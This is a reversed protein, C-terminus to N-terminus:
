STEPESEKEIGVNTKAVYANIEKIKIIPMKLDEKDKMKGLFLDQYKVGSYQLNSYSADFVAQHLMKDVTFITELLDKLNKAIAIKKLAEISRICKDVVYQKDNDSFINTRFLYDMLIFYGFNKTDKLPYAFNWEIHKKVFKKIEESEDIKKPIKVVIKDDKSSEHLEKEKAENKLKILELKVWKNIKATKIEKIEDIECLLHIINRIGTINEKGLLDNKSKKYLHDVSSYKIGLRNCGISNKWKKFGFLPVLGCLVAVYIFFLFWGNEIVSQPIAVVEETEKSVSNFKTLRKKDRLLNYAKGVKFLYENIREREDGEVKDPDNQKVIKKFAKKIDNISADQQLNLVEYPDYLSNHKIKITAINFIFYSIFISLIILTTPIIRSKPKRLSKCTSCFCPQTKKLYKRMLYIFPMLAIILSLYSSPLGTEDYKYHHSM